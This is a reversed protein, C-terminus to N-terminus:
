WLRAYKAAPSVEAVLMPMMRDNIGKIDSAMAIMLRPWRRVM